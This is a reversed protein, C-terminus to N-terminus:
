FVMRILDDISKSSIGGKEDDQTVILQGNEGGGEEWPLIGNEYYWSKKREWRDRYRPDYMMGCHEWYYTIGSDEDEITFDPYKEVHGIKLPQEYEPNLGYTHLKDYIILESKSRVPIDTSTKHILNDEYM